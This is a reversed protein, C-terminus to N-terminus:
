ATPDSGPQDVLCVSLLTDRRVDRWEHLTHPRFIYLEPGEYTLERGDPLALTGAGEVVQCFALAPSSHMVFHGGAAIRVLQLEAPGSRGLEVLGVDTLKEGELEAFPQWAPSATVAPEVTGDRDLRFDTVRM